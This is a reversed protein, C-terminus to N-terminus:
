FLVRVDYQLPNPSLIPSFTDSTAIFGQFCNESRGYKSKWLFTRLNPFTATLNTVIDHWRYTYRFAHNQYARASFSRVNIRCLLRRERDGRVDVQITGSPRTLFSPCSQSMLVEYLDPPLYLTVQPAKPQIGSLLTSRPVLNSPLM